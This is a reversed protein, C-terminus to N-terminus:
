KRVSRELATSRKHIKNTIQRQWVTMVTEQLRSSVQQFLAPTKAKKYTINEQTKNSEM